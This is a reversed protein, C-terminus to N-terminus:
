GREGIDARNKEEGGRTSKDDPEAHAFLKWAENAKKSPKRRGVNRDINIPRRAAQTWRDPKNKRKKRRPLYFGNRIKHLKKRVM